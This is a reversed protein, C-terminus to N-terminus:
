VSRHRENTQRDGVTDLPSSWFADREEHGRLMDVAIDDTISGFLADIATLRNEYTLSTELWKSRVLRLAALDGGISTTGGVLLDQGLNGGLTDRGGGGILLDSGEGGLLRDDGGRGVLIDHGGHGELRNALDDGIIIDDFSTGVVNEIGIARGGIGTARGELLRVEVGAGRTAFSLTDTNATGQIGGALKGGPHFTFDTRTNEGRLNEFRQFAAKIFKDGAYMDGQDAGDISFLNYSSAAILVDNGNGGSFNYEYLGPPAGADSLDASTGDGPLEQVRLQDDGSGAVLSFKEVDQHSAITSGDRDLAQRGAVSGPRYFYKRAATGNDGANLTDVGNGGHFTLRGTSPTFGALNAIALDDGDGANLKLESHTVLVNVVDSRNGTHLTVVNADSAGVFMRVPSQPVAPHQYFRSVYDGTVEYLPINFAYPNNQDFMEVHEAEQVSLGNVAALNQSTPTIRVHDAGGGAFVQFNPNASEIDIHDAQNGCHVSVNSVGFFAVGAITAIFHEDPQGVNVKVLNDRHVSNSTITYKNGWGLNYPNLTDFITLSDAQADGEVRLGFLRGLDNVGAGLHFFDDGDGGRVVADEVDAVDGVNIRDIYGQGDLLLRPGSARHVFFTDNGDGGFLTLSASSDDVTIWDSGPGGGVFLEELGSGPTKPLYDIRVSNIRDANDSMEAREIRKFGISQEGTASSLVLEESATASASLKADRFGEVVLRDLDGDGELIISRASNLPSADAFTFIDRLSTGTIRLQEPPAGWNLKYGDFAVENDDFRYNRYREIVVHDDGEGGDFTTSGAALRTGLSRASASASGSGSAADILLTDDGRGTLISLTKITGTPGVSINGLTVTNDNGEESDWLKANVIVGDVDHTRIAPMDDGALNTELRVGWGYPNVTVNYDGDGPTKLAFEDFHKMVIPNDQRFDVYDVTLGGAVLAGGFRNAVEPFGDPSAYSRGSGTGYIELTTGEITSGFVIIDASLRADITVKQVGYALNRGDAAGNIRIIGATPVSFVRLGNSDSDVKALATTPSEYALDITCDGAGYV